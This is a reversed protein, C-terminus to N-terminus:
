KINLIKSCANIIDNEDFYFEKELPTSMPVHSNPWCIRQPAADLKINSEAVTAMIEASYGFNKWGDEVLVLKKTKKISSLVSELKMNSISRLDFLDCKIGNKKYLVEAAKLSTLVSAGAAVITLANGKLRLRPKEIDIYYKDVPVLEKTNYLSRYEIFIVPDNSMISSLLMGKAESASSPMLVKLGPLYSFMTHLTKAHQPGQGWGRGVIARIVLPAFSKKASKFSWLSIWNILQDFSYPMFDVRHHILVPRLKGDLSAGLAFATEAQESNPTDFIRKSKYKKLLGETSKFVHGTKDVAIGFTFVSKDFAMAQKMAENISQSFTLIKKKM